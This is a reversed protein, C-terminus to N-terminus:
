ALVLAPQTEAGAMFLDELATLTSLSKGMGMGAWVNCRPTDILFNTILEQYPRPTYPKAM